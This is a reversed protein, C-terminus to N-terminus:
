IDSTRMLEVARDVEMRAKGLHGSQYAEVGGKYAARVQALLEKVPDPPKPVDPPPFAAWPGAPLRDLPFLSPPPPPASEAGKKKKQKQPPDAFAAAPCVLASILVLILCRHLNRHQSMFLVSARDIKM